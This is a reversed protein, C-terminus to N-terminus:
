GGTSSIVRGSQADVILRLKRGDETVWDIRYEAGGGRKSFLEANLHSGGFRRKLSQIVERLPKIDGNQSADRAQGPSFSSGWGQGSAPAVLSTASIAILMVFSAVWRLM